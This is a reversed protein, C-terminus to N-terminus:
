YAHKSRWYKWITIAENWNNKALGMDMAIKDLSKKFEAEDLLESLLITTGPLQEEIELFRQKVPYNIVNDKIFSYLNKVQVIYQNNFNGVTYKPRHQHQTIQYGDSLREVSFQKKWRSRHYWRKSKKDIIINIAHHQKIFSALYNKHWIIPIWKDPFDIELYELNDGREYEASVYKQLGWPNQPETDLWSDFNGPYCKKAWELNSETSTNWSAIAPHTGLCAILMKGASGPAFRILLFKTDTM